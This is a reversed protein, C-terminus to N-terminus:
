AVVNRRQDTQTSARDGLGRAPRRRVETIEIYRCRRM